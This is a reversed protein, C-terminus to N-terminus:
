APARASSPVHKGRRIQLNPRQYSIQLEAPRRVAQLSLDLGRAAYQVDLDVAHVKRIYDEDAEVVTRSTGAVELEDALAARQTEALEVLHILQIPAHTTTKRKPAEHQHVATCTIWSSCDTDSADLVSSASIRPFCSYVHHCSTRMPPNQEMDMQETLKLPLKMSESITNGRPASSTAM